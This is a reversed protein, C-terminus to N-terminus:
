SALVMNQFIKGREYIGKGEGRPGYKEKKEEEGGYVMCPTAHNIIGLTHQPLWLQHHHNHLLLIAPPSLGLHNPPQNYQSDQIVICSNQFHTPHSMSPAGASLGGPNLDLM